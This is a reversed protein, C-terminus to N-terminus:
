KDKKEPINPFIGMMKEIECGLNQCIAMPDINDWKLLYIDQPRWNGTEVKTSVYEGNKQKELLYPTPKPKDGEKKCESFDWCKMFEEPDLYKDEAGSILMAKILCDRIDRMTIGKVEQKGREGDCTWPQGNYPRDKDNRYDSSSHTSWLEFDLKDKFDPDNSDLIPIEEKNM